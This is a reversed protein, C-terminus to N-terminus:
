ANRVMLDPIDMDAKSVFTFHAKAKKTLKMSQKLEAGVKHVIKGTCDKFSSPIKRHLSIVFYM